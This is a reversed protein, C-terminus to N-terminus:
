AWTNASIQAVDLGPVMRLLEPISTAGSRRIDDGTIVFVAAASESLSQEQRAVSTVEINLLDELPLEALSGPKSAPREEALPGPPALCAVSLWLSVAVTWADRINM